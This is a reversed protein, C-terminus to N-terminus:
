EARKHTTCGKLKGMIKMTNQQITHAVWGDDYDDDDDDCSVFGGLTQVAIHRYM